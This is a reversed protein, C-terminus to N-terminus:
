GGSRRKEALSVIVSSGTDHWDIDEVGEVIGGGQGAGGVGPPDVIHVLDDSGILGGGALV